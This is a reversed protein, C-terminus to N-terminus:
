TAVRGVYGLQGMEGTRRGVEALCFWLRRRQTPTWRGGGCISAAGGGRGKEELMRHLGRRERWFVSQMLIASTVPWQRGRSTEGQRGVRYFTAVSEGKEIVDMLAGTKAGGRKM